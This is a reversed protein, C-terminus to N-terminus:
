KMAERPSIGRGLGIPTGPNAKTQALVQPLRMRIYEESEAASMNRRKGGGTGKMKLFLEKQRDAQVPPVGAGGVGPQGYQLLAPDQAPPPPTPDTTPPVAPMIADLRDQILKAKAEIAEASDGQIMDAFEKAKPYKEIAQRRADDLSRAQDRQEMFGLKAEALELKIAPLEEDSAAAIKSKFEKDIDALSAYSM